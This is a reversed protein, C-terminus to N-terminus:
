GDSGESEIIAAIEELAKDWREAQGEYHGSGDAVAKSEEIAWGAADLIDPLLEKLRALETDLQGIIEVASIHAAGDHWM